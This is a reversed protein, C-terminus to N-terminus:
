FSSYDVDTPQTASLECSMELDDDDDESPHIKLIESSTSPNPFLSPLGRTALGAKGLDLSVSKISKFDKLSYGQRAIKLALSKKSKSM